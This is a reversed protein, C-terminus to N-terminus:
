FLRKKVEAFTWSEGFHGIEEHLKEIITM